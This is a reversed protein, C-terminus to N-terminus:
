DPANLFRIKHFLDDHWNIVVDGAGERYATEAAIRAFEACELPANIVVTQGPQINIGTRVALRAYKELVIRNM